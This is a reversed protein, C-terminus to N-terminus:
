STYRLSERMAEADEATSFWQGGVYFMKEPSRSRTRKAQLTWSGGAECLRKSSQQARRTGERRVDEDRRPVEM